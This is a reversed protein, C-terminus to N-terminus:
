YLELIEKVKNYGEKKLQRQYDELGNIWTLMHNERKHKKIELAEYAAELITEM